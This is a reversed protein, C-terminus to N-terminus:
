IEDSPHWIPASAEGAPFRSALADLLAPLGAGTLPSVAIVPRKLARSLRAAEAEASRAAATEREAAVDLLRALPTAIRNLDAETWNASGSAYLWVARADTPLRLVIEGSKSEPAASAHLRRTEFPTAM